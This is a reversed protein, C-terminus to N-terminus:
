GSSDSAKDEYVMVTFPERRQRAMAQLRERYSDDIVAGRPLYFLGTPGDLHQALTEGGKLSLVEVEVAVHSLYFAELEDVVVLAQDAIVPDLATARSKKLTDRARRFDLPEDDPQQLSHDMADAVAIVRAELPTEAGILRGPFGTGDFNEHHAGVFDAVHGGSVMHEIIVRGAEPHREYASRQEDTLQEPPTGAIQASLTVKGIDHLLAAIELYGRTRPPIRLREALMLSYEAVRSGHSGSFAEKNELIGLLARASSVLSEKAEDIEMRTLKLNLDARRLKGELEDARRNAAHLDATLADLELHDQTDAGNEPAVRRGPGPPGVLLPYDPATEPLSAKIVKLMERPSIPKSMFSQVKLPALVSLNERTGQASIVIVPVTVGLARLVSLLETGDIGPLGLDLLLLDLHKRLAIRFGDVADPAIDCIYGAQELVDKVMDASARDDEVYLIRPVRGDITV